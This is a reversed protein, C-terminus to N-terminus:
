EEKAAGGARAPEYHIDFHEQAVHLLYCAIQVPALWALTPPLVLHFGILGVIGGVAMPHPVVSYPFSRCVKPPAHGLEVAFFSNDWGLAITACLELGYGAILLAVSLLNLKDQLLYLYAMQMLSYAKYVSVDRQFVRVNVSGRCYYSAMYLIHHQFSCGILTPLISSTLYNCVMLLGIWFINAFGICKQILHVQQTTFLVGVQSLFKEIFTQPKITKLFLRRAAHDYASTLYALLRGLPKLCRPYVLYHVKLTIRFGEIEEGPNNEIFHIERNFDFAVMDGTSVTTKTPVMPFHTSIMKNPNIGIISRFLYCFPYWIWPGDVHRMYFVADSNKSYSPSAIYIENMSDVVEMECAAGFRDRFMKQVAACYGVSSFDRQVSEPVDEYWWHTTHEKTPNQSLVWDKLDDMAKQQEPQTNVKTQLVNVQPVFWSLFCDDMHAVSQLVLPLLLFTHECLLQMWAGQDMYSSQYTRENTIFHALDQGFYSIGLLVLSYGIHIDLSLSAVLLGFLIASTGAWLKLPVHRTLLAVWALVLTSSLWWSGAVCNLICLVGLIGAPTTVLHLAVNVTNKHFKNFDSAIGEFSKPAPPAM